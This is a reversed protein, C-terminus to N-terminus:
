HAKTAVTFLIFPRSFGPTPPWAGVRLTPGDVGGAAVVWV